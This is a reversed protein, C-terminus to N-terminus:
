DPLQENRAERLTRRPEKTKSVARNEITEHRDLWTPEM